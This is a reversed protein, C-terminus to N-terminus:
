VLLKAETDVSLMVATIDDTQAVDHAYAQVANLLRDLTSEPKTASGDKLALILREFGFPAGASNLADTVGDTYVLLSDGARLSLVTVPYDLDQMVGLAPARTVPIEILDGTEPMLIPSEHGASAIELTLSWPDWIAYIVTVFLLMPNQTCLQNNAESLCQGPDSRTVAVNRILTRAIAMFFAAPVGKGSVDGIVIGLRGDNLEFLDYFDGGVELAPIMRAAGSTHRTNPFGSPLIAKQLDRALELQSALLTQASRQSMKKVKNRDNV